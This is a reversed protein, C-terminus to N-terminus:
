YDSILFSEPGLCFEEMFILCKRNVDSLLGFIGDWSIPMPKYWFVYLEKMFAPLQINKGYLKKTERGGFFNIMSYNSMRNVSALKRDLM